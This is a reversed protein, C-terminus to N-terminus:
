KKRIKGLEEKILGKIEMAMLLQNAKSTEMKLARILEDRALPESLQDFVQKEEATLSSNEQSEETKELGLEDIIDVSSTVPTAGQRLLRHSGKTNDSFISGPVVFVDRNYDLALRATILTGSKEGAEIILTAHSMGAMIRNRKPFSWPTAEFTPEFESILAGNSELIERALPVHTQPYLVDENLGSGPVAITKLGYKLAAKHAHSDMGLALGSVIVVPLGSLGAILEECVDRGYNTAKRSGVVALFVHDDSPLEGRVYLQEPADPIQRLLAPFQEPTLKQMEPM